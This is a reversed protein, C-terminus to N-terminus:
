QLSIVGLLLLLPICSTALAVTVFFGLVSVRGIAGSVVAIGGGGGVLTNGPANILFAISLHPYNALTTRIWQLSKPRQTNNQLKHLLNQVWPLHRGARGLAFALTLGVITALWAGIIGPVSFLAMIMLGIEMGPAFPIILILAYLACLLTLWALSSYDSQDILQKLSDNGGKLLYAIVVLTAVFFLVRATQYTRGTHKPMRDSM